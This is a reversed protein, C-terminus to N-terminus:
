KFDSSLGYNSDPYEEELMLLQKQTKEDADSASVPADDHGPASVNNMQHIKTTETDTLDNSTLSNSSLEQSSGHDEVITTPDEENNSLLQNPDNTNINATLVMVPKRSRPTM